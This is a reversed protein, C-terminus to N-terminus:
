SMELAAVRSELAEIKTVAEQLAATLVPILNSADVSQPDIAGDKMADKEGGTAEPVVSAVEHALFGDKITKNEDGIWNFRRPKLAKVRNIAGTIDSVNEKLRYDSTKFYKVENAGDWYIGGKYTLNNDYFRTYYTPDGSEPKFVIGYYGGGGGFQLHMKAAYATLAATTGLYLTGNTGDVGIYDDDTYVDSWRLSSSGLQYTSDANPTVHGVVDGNFTINDSADSGLTVSGNITASGAFVVGGASTIQMTATAGVSGLYGNNPIVINNGVTMLGGGTYTGSVNLSPVQIGANTITLNATATGAKMTNFVLKGDEETDTVDTAVAYIQAANFLQNNDNEMNFQMIGGGDGDAPSVSYRTLNLVPGTSAGEEDQSVTFQAVNNGTVSMILGSNHSHSLLVDQNDGFYIIANDSDLVIDDGVTADGSVTLNGGSSLSMKEAAAESAATKFSLKTANNSSSFDGESVAAIEAAVLIADTGTAEDPAQFQIKGLVDAVAVDTDGSQLLVTAPSASTAPNKVTLKTAINLDVMLDYVVSSGEGGDTAIIKVDGAPIAVNAGSGQSFTLTYNTANEMIWIKSVTNPALTVTCAQGGGTCKVYISRAGDTAGDQITITHTSDDAIAETGYGFAEGILELNTNTTAGWTTSQEGSAIEELRLDNVYTSAM